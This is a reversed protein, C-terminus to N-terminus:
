ALISEVLMKGCWNVIVLAVVCPFIGKCCSTMWHLNLLKAAFDQKVVV